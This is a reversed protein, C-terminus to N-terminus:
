LRSNTKDAYYYDYDKLLISHGRDINLYYIVLCLIILVIVGIFIKKKHSEFFDSMM